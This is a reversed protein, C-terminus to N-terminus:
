VNVRNELTKYQNKLTNNEKVAYTENHVGFFLWMVSLIVGWFLAGWLLMRMCVLFRSRMTPYIREYNDTVPNYAYQAKRAM